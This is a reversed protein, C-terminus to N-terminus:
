FPLTLGGKQSNSESLHPSADIHLIVIYLIIVEDVIYLSTNNRYIIYYASSGSENLNERLELCLGM